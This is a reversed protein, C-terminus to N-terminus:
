RGVSGDEDRGGEDGLVKIAEWRSVISGGAHVRRQEGGVALEERVLGTRKRKWLAREDRAKGQAGRQEMM